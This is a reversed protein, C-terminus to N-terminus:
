TKLAELLGATMTRSVIELIAIYKGNSTGHLMCFFNFNGQTLLLSANMRELSM